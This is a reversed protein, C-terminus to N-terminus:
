LSIVQFVVGKMASYVDYNLQLDYNGHPIVKDESFNIINTIIKFQGGRKAYIGTALTKSM